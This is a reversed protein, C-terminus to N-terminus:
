SAGTDKRSSCVQSMRLRIPDNRAKAPRRTMATVV